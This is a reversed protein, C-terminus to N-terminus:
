PSARPYVGPQTYTHLPNPQSGHQTGDGFDWDYTLPDGNPDTSGAADFQVALPAPGSTPTAGLVSSPSCNSPSYVIRKIAGIFDPFALDGTPTTKLDVGLWGTAFPAV